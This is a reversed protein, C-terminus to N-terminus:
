ARLARADEELITARRQDLVKQIGALLDGSLQVGSAQVLEDLQEPRSAGVIAASMVKTRLIWAL